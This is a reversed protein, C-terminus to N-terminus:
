YENDASKDIYCNVTSSPADPNLDFSVPLCKLAVATYMFSPQPMYIVAVSHM